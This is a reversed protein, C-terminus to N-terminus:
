KNNPRGARGVQARRLPPKAYAPTGGQPVFATAQFKTSLEDLAKRAAEQQAEKKSKGWGIGLLGKGVSVSAQFRKDHDPGSEHFVLYEPQQGSARQIHEQLLSKYDHFLHAAREPPLHVTLHREVM